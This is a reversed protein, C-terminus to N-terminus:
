PQGADYYAKLDDVALGEIWQQIGLEEGFFAALLVGICVLVFVIFLYTSARPALAQEIHSEDYGYVDTYLQAVGLLFFPRILVTVVGVSVLIPLFVWEYMSYVWNEEGWEIGGNMLWYVAGIYAAIGVVWCVLSYGFRLGMAYFPHKKIIGLSQKGADILGHGNVLSPVIGMTGFKWAYYILEDAMTRRNRKDKSPLRDFIANVTIWADVFSFAWIRFQNREAIRIAGLLSSGGYIKRMVHVAVMASNFIGIPYSVLLVVLLSWGFLALSLLEGPGDRDEEIAKDVEHWVEDPIWDLFQIFAIYGLAIFAWQLMALVIIEKERMILKFSEGINLFFTQVNSFSFLTAQDRNRLIISKAEDRVFDLRKKTKFM